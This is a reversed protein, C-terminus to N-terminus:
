FRHSQCSRLSDSTPGSYPKPLCCASVQACSQHCSAVAHQQSSAFLRCALRSQVEAKEKEERAKQNEAKLFSELSTLSEQVAVSPKCCGILARVECIDLSMGKWRDASQKTAMLVAARFNAYLDSVKKLHAKQKDTLMPQLRMTWGFLSHEDVSLM